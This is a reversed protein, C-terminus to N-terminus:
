LEGWKKRFYNLKENREAIYKEINKTHWVLQKFEVLKPQKKFCRQRYLYQKFLLCIYNKVNRPDKIIKNCIVNHISFDIQQQDFQMMFEELSCWLQEVVKCFIFFHRFTELEKGCFSCKDDERLKWKHLNTNMVLARHLLRYQFSRYKPINTVLCICKCETILDESSFDEGLDKSWKSSKLKINESQRAMNIYAHGTLNIRACATEYFIHWIPESDKHNKKFFQKWERPIASIISNYRMLSLGYQDMAKRISITTGGEYSHQNVYILGNKIVDKWLIPEGNIRIQSNLWIIQENTMSTTDCLNKYENWAGFVEMWFTDTTLYKLDRTEINCNWLKEKMVNCLNAYVVNALKEDKHLIQVWGIKLAKNKRELDCLNLGGKDKPLTLINQLIKPRAGNWIFKSIAANISKEKKESMMPLVTMRYMFISAILMNIVTVKEMLSLRRKNWDLLLLKVKTLLPDYNLKLIETQNNSIWIGLINIPENTWSVVRQSILRADSNKISGMRFISTKDYNLTFGSMRKFSEMNKFIQNYSGQDYLSFIDADDAYQSLVNLFENIPIGKIETDTKIMISMIEACILFYLSSCPGGQHIGRQIDIRNSFYGNNQTNVKFGTYLIETWRQIYEPFGFHKLAGILACFEIKDFCKQFDLSLIFSSLDHKETFNMLELVMRINSSIRRSKLFGRQDKSIIYKMAPEMRNAIAKEIIKCDSNILTIPRLSTLFRSDKGAKPIMNIVGIRASNNMIKEQYIESLMDM